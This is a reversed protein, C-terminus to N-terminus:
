TKRSSVCLGSLYGAAWGCGDLRERKELTRIERAYDHGAAVSSGGVEGKVEIPGSLDPHEATAPSEPYPTIGHRQPKRTTTSLLKGNRKM